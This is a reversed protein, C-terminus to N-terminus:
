MFLPLFVVAHGRLLKSCLHPPSHRPLSQKHRLRLRSPHRLHPPSSPAAVPTLLFPRPRRHRPSPSSMSAVAVVGRPPSQRPRVIHNFGRAPEPIPTLTRTQPFHTPSSASSGSKTKGKTEKKERQLALRRLM